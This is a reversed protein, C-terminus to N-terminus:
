SIILSMSSRAVAHSELLRGERSVQSLSRLHLLNGVGTLPLSDSSPSSLFFGRLCRLAMRGALLLDLFHSLSSSSSSSSGRSRTSALAPGLAREAVAVPAAAAEFYCPFDAHFVDDILLAPPCDENAASGPVAYENNACRPSRLVMKCGQQHALFEPGM